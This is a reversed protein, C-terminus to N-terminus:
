HSPAVGDEGIRGTRHLERIFLLRNVQAMSWQVDNLPIGCLFATLNSAEATSLGKRLLAWYTRQTALTPDHATAPLTASTVAIGAAAASPGARRGSSSARHCSRAPGRSGRPAQGAMDWQAGM